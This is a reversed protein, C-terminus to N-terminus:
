MFVLQFFGEDRTDRSVVVDSGRHRHIVDGSDMFVADFEDNELFLCDGVVSKGVRMGISTSGVSIDANSECCDIVGDVGVVNDIVDNM